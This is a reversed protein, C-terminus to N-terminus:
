QNKCEKNDGQKMSSTPQGRGLSKPSPALGPPPAPRIEDVAGSAELTSQSMPGSAAASESAPAADFIFDGVGGAAPPPPPGVPPPPLLSPPTDNRCEVKSRRETDSDAATLPGAGTSGFDVAPELEAPCASSIDVSANAALSASTVSSAKPIGSPRLSQVAGSKGGSTIHLELPQPEFKRLCSDDTLFWACGERSSETERTWKTRKVYEEHSPQLDSIESDWSIQSQRQLGPEEEPQHSGSQGHGSPGDVAAAPSASASASAASIAAAPAPAAAVAAVSPLTPTIFGGPMQDGVPGPVLPLPTGLPPSVAPPHLAMTGSSCGLGVDPAPTGASLGDNLGQQPSAQPKTDVPKPQIRPPDQAEAVKSFDALASVLDFLPIKINLPMNLVPINHGGSDESDLCIKSGNCCVQVALTVAMAFFLSEGVRVSQL